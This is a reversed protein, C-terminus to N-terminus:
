VVPRWSGDVDGMLYGLWNLSSAAELSIEVPANDAPAGALPTVRGPAAMFQWRDALVPSELGTAWSLIVRADDLEVLGNRDTDAAIRAVEAPISSGTASNAPRAIDGRGTALKLAALVDAADLARHLDADGGQAAHARVTFRDFDLGDLAWHGDLGSRTAREVTNSSTARTISVEVGPLPSATVAHLVAGSLSATEIHFKAVFEPSLAGRGDRLMFSLEAASEPRAQEASAVFQLGALEDFGLPKYVQGAFRVFPASVNVDGATSLNDLSVAVDGPSPFHVMEGSALQVAGLSPAAMLVPKAVAQQWAQISTLSSGSPTSTGLNDAPDVLDLGSLSGSSFDAGFFFDAGYQFPQGARVSYLRSSQGAGLDLRPAFNPAFDLLVNAQLEQMPAGDQSVPVGKFRLYFRGAKESGQLAITLLNAGETVYSFLTLFRLDLWTQGADDTRTVGIELGDVLDIRVGSRSKVQAGDVLIRTVNASDTQMVVPITGSVNDILTGISAGLEISGRGASAFVPLEQLPLSFYPARGTSLNLQPSGPLTDLLQILNPLSMSAGRVASASGSALTTSLVASSVSLSVAASYAAGNLYDTLVLLPRSIVFEPPASM